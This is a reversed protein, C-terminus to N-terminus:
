RLVSGKTFNQQAEDILALAKLIIESLASMLEQRRTFDETSELDALATDFDARIKGFEESLMVPPYWVKQM